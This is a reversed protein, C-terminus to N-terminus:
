RVRWLLRFLLQFLLMLAGSLVSLSVAMGAAVGTESSTIMQFIQQIAVKNSPLILFIIAGLTTMTTSFNKLFASEFAPLMLPIVVTGLMRGEGAGLTRAADEIDPNQHELLAYGARLGVNTYRFICIVYLIIGTGLLM